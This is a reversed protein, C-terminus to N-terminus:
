VSCCTRKMWAIGSLLICLGTSVSCLYFISQTFTVLTAEHPICTEKWLSLYSLVIFVVNIINTVAIICAGLFGDLYASGSSLDDDSFMAWVSAICLVMCLLFGFPVYILGVLTSVWLLWGCGSAYAMSDHLAVGGYGLWCGYAVLLGCGSCCGLVEHLTGM